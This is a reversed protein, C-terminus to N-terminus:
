LVSASKYEKLRIALMVASARLALIKATKGLLATPVRGVSLKDEIILM